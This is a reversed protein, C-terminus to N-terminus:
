DKKLSTRFYGIGDQEEWVRGIEMGNQDIVRYDHEGAAEMKELRVPILEHAGYDYYYLAEFSEPRNVAQNWKRYIPDTPLPTVNPREQGGAMSGLLGSDNFTESVYDKYIAEKYVSYM